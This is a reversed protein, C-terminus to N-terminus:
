FFLGCDAIRWDGDEKVLPTYREDEGTLQEQRGDLTFNGKPRAQASVDNLERVDVGTLDFSVETAGSYLEMIASEALSRM